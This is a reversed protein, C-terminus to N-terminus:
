FAITLRGGLVLANDLAQDTGSNIIYQVDPQVALWPTLMDSYTLEFATKASDLPMGAVASAAKFAGSNHVRAIALGLKGEERGPLLGTYVLGASWAYDFQNVRKDAFGIRGFASIGKTIEREGILYFGQSQKMEATLHDPFEETYRWAGLALKRGEAAAGAEAILLVGDSSRLTIQTGEPDGPDGPVGDLIAAQFYFAEALQIKIRAALSTFPFISPGNVGSQSMDTGIGYTSHLFLLSTDTVYFESNLDYLGALMSLKDGLLNQQLWAQYLKGTARPVEINDIGQASGTLDADPRGGNNNLLHINASLGKAGFLKEGDFTFVADLNDLVRVGHKIGGSANGMVDFKYTIDASVGTEALAARRGGWDGTLTNKWSDSEEAAVPLPLAAGAGLACLLVIKQLNRM